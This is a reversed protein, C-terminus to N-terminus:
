KILNRWLKKRLFLLAWAFFPCLIIYFFLFNDFYLPYGFYASYGVIKESGLEPIPFFARIHRFFVLSFLFFLLYICYEFSVKKIANEPKM